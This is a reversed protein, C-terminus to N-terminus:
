MGGSDVGSPAFLLYPEVQEQEAREIYERGNVKCALLDRALIPHSAIRIRIESFEKSIRLAMADDGSLRKVMLDRPMLFTLDQLKKFQNHSRIEAVKKDDLWILSGTQAYGCLALVDLLSRVLEANVTPQIVVEALESYVDDFLYMSDKEVSRFASEPDSRFKAEQLRDLCTQVSIIKRKLDRERLKTPLDVVTEEIESLRNLVMNNCALTVGIGIKTAALNEEQLRLTAETNAKIEDIKNNMRFNQVIGLLGTLAGGLLGTFPGMPSPLGFPLGMQSVNQSATTEQLHAVIGGKKSILLAGERTLNGNNYDDLYDEPVKFEFSM